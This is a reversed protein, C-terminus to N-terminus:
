KVDSNKQLPSIIAAEECLMEETYDKRNTFSPMNRLGKYWLGDTLLLRM